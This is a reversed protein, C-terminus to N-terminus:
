EGEGTTRVILVPITSKELLKEVPGEIRPAEGREGLPAGVVLLDYRGEACEARIQELPGGERLRTAAHIGLPALTRASAALFREAQERTAPEVDEGPLVTLVTVEADFHRALRGAFRIGRKGPEGPAVAILVRRPASAGHPVLLVHHDGQRLTAAATDVAGDEPYGVIVLDFAGATAHTRLADDIGEPSRLVAEEGSVPKTAHAGYCLQTARARARKALDLGLTVAAAGEPGGGDVCLFAMGPHALAHVRRLGVWATDGPGLPFRRALHQPRVADVVVYDGGFPAAPAVMRVGRLPLRLRLREFAGVFSSTEVTGEGLLPWQLADPSDKVAVDEPRFLLQVRGAGPTVEHTAAVPLEVTGVRAGRDSREAVVLNATGLFTATFETTPHLYLERPTGCELLRGHNLVAIRDGLEFAEEQDHTVFITTVGLEQQIRKMTARLETRIRADLAGFPEDLLLVEPAHALARALGVRQQQGGSLQGPRRAAYGTLGVLELLEDRRRAREVRSVGRIRLAFEVNDAVTMHRFLAYHQFVFGVGRKQPPVRTVDRGHLLVRGSDAEALGAVIRLLTSKGSGSPGLLVCLEGDAIELSVDRVVPQGGYSKSLHEFVISVPGGKSSSFTGGM